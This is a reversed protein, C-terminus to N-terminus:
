LVSKDAEQLKKVFTTAAEREKEGWGDRSRIREIKEEAPVREVQKLIQRASYAADAADM